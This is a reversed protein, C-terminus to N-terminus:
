LTVGYVNALDRKIREIQDFSLIEGTTPNIGSEVATKLTNIQSIQTTEQANVKDANKVISDFTAGIESFLKGSTIAEVGKVGTEVVTTQGSARKYLFYVAGVGIAAGLPTLLFSKINM